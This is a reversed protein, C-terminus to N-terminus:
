VQGLKRFQRRDMDTLRSQELAQGLQIRQRLDSLEYVFSAVGETRVAVAGV